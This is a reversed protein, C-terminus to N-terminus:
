KNYKQNFREIRSLKKVNSNTNLPNLYNLDVHPLNKGNLSPYMTIIDKTNHFCIITFYDANKNNVKGCSDYKFTYLNDCDGPFIRKDSPIYKKIEELIKELPFNSSFICANPDDIDSNYDALHKQIHELFDSEKYEVIQRFLYSNKQRKNLDLKGLKKNSYFLAHNFNLEKIKDKHQLCLRNLEDYRETFSLIKIKASIIINFFSNNNKNNTFIVDQYAQKETKNIINEAKEFEGLNTLIFAYYVYACYDNPYKSIYNELRIKAEYPDSEMLNIANLFEWKNYYLKKM